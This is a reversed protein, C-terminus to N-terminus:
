AATSLTRAHNTLDSKLTRYLERILARKLCRIIEKKTKGEATRKEVYARTPEHWRLRNVVIMYLVSNAQRDGGRHLRHRSSNGTSAPIPAVGCLRALSAESTFRDANQGVTTLLQGAAEPGVGFVELTTPAVSEILAALETNAEAIEEDLRQVRRALRRLMAKAAVAPDHLRAHDARLRACRAVLAARNLGALLERLDEPAGYLLGHMQQIAAKRAKVASARTTRLLRIAEVHGTRPKPRATATEALVARAANIADIPDSKGQLRRTQRNPRTVELVPVGQSDLHRYLGAGYSGTGEIGVRLVTGATSMWALLQRYGAATAPFEQDGLLKGTVADIVACHHTHGHTDVGGIVEGSM